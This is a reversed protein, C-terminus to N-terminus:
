NDCKETFAEFLHKDEPNEKKEEYCETLRQLHISPLSLLSKQAFSIHIGLNKSPLVPANFCFLFQSQIAIPHPLAISM